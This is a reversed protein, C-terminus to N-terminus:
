LAGHASRRYGAAADVSLQDLTPCGAAELKTMQGYKTSQGFHFSSGINDSVVATRNRFPLFGALL